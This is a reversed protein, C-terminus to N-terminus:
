VKRTIQKQSMFTSLERFTPYDFVVTRPFFIGTESQLWEALEIASLSDLGADIFPQDMAHTCDGLLRVLGRKLIKSATSVSMSVHAMKIKYPVRQLITTELDHREDPSDELMELLDWSEGLVNAHVRKFLLINLSEVVILGSDTKHAALANSLLQLAIEPRMSALGLRGLKEEDEAGIM